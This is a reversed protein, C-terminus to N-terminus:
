YYFTVCIDIAYLGIATARVVRRTKRQQQGCRRSADAGDTANMELAKKRPVKKRKKSDGSYDDDHHNKARPM